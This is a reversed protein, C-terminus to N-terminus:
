LIRMENNMCILYTQVVFFKNVLKPHFRYACYEYLNCTNDLGIFSCLSLCPLLKFNLIQFLNFDTHTVISYHWNILKNHLWKMPQRLNLDGFLIIESKLLIVCDYLLKNIFVKFYPSRSLYYHQPVIMRFLEAGNENPPSLKFHYKSWLYHTKKLHVLWM